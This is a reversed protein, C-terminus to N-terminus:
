VAFVLSLFSLVPLVNRIYKVEESLWIESDFKIWFVRCKWYILTAVTHTHHANHSTVHTGTHSLWVVQPPAKSQLKTLALPLHPDNASHHVCQTNFICACCFTHTHKESIAPPSFFLPLTSSLVVSDHQLPSKSMIVACATCMCPMFCVVRRVPKLSDTIHLNQSSM